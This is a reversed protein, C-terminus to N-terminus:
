KLTIPNKKLYISAPSSRLSNPRRGCCTTSMPLRANVVQFFSLLVSLPSELTYDINFIADRKAAKLYM